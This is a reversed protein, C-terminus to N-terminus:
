GSVAYEPSAMALTVLQEPDEALPRLATATRETFAALGLLEATAAIRDAPAATRVPSIDGRGALQRALRLRALASATTLWRAGAPWGGVDPPAFPVQGLGVLGARLAQEPVSSATLRLARLAGVLWLVPEKVLVSAPDRFAPDLVAARVMATIDRGPGYARVLRDTTAPDPPTDSVFRTWVRGALFRPSDPQAVLHDVLTAADYGAPRGLVTEPGPDHARPVLRSGGDTYDVRWGTLARAAERVDTETYHGVGLTFLEMFERALNENPRGVRNGQGDLWILMAPDTVLARALEGFDGRGLRRFTDNQQYMFAADRVKKVSTAFHTHWFWAMREPFPATTGAMRDLWWVGLERGDAASERNRAKRAEPSAGKGPRPTPTFAPAPPGTEAAPPALLAGLTAEFGPSTAPQGPGTGLGLRNLLRRIADRDSLPNASM